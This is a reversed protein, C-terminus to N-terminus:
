LPGAEQEEGGHGLDELPKRKSLHDEMAIPTLVLPKEMGVLSTRVRRGNGLPRQSFRHM